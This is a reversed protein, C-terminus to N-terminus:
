ETMPTSDKLVVLALLLVADNELAILGSIARKLLCTNYWFKKVFM